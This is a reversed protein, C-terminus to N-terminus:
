IIIWRVALWFIHIRDRMATCTIPMFKQKFNFLIYIFCGTSGNARGELLGRWLLRFWKHTEERKENGKLTQRFITEVVWTPSSSMSVFIMLFVDLSYMKNNLSSDVASAFAHDCHTKWSECEGIAAKGRSVRFSTNPPHISENFITKVKWVFPPLPGDTLFQSFSRRSKTTPTFVWKPSFSFSM